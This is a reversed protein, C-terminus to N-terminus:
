GPTGLESDGVLPAVISHPQDLHISHNAIGRQPCERSWHGLERCDYRNRSARFQRSVHDSGLHNALEHQSCEGSGHDDKGCDYGVELVRPQRPICVSEQSAAGGLGPHGGHGSSGYRFSRLVQHSSQGSHDGRSLGLASNLFALAVAIEVPAQVPGLDGSQCQLDEADMGLERTRHHVSDKPVRTLTKDADILLRADDM